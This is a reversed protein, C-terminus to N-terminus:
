HNDTFFSPHKETFCFYFHLQIYITFSIVNNFCSTFNVLDLKMDLKDQMLFKAFHYWKIEKLYWHTKDLASKFPLSSPLNTCCKSPFNFCRAKYKLTYLIKTNTFCVANFYLYIRRKHLAIKPYDNEEAITSALTLTLNSM